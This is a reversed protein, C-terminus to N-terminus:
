ARIEHPPTPVIYLVFPDLVIGLLPRVPRAAIAVILLVLAAIGVATYGFQRHTERFAPDDFLGLGILFVQIVITAVFIWAVVAFAVRLYRVM